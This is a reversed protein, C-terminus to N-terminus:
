KMMENNRNWLLNISFSGFSNNQERERDRKKKYFRKEVKLSNSSRAITSSVPFSIMMMTMM